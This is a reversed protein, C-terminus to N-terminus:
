RRRHPGSGINIGGDVNGTVQVVNGTVTGTVLNTVGGSPRPALEASLSTLRALLLAHLGARVRPAVAVTISLAAVQPVAM